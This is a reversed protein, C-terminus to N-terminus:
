IWKNNHIFMKINFNNQYSKMVKKMVKKTGKGFFLSILIGGFVGSKSAILILWLFSSPVFM